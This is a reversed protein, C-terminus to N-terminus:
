RRRRLFLFAGLTGASLMVVRGTRTAPFRRLRLWVNGAPTATEQYPVSEDWANEYRRKTADADRTTLGPRARKSKRHSTKM